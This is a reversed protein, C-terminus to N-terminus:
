KVKGTLKAMARRRTFTTAEGLSLVRRAAKGDWHANHAMSRIVADADTVIPNGEPLRMIQWYLRRASESAGERHLSPALMRVVGTLRIAALREVVPLAAERAEEASGGIVPTVAQLVADPQASVFHTLGELTPLYVTSAPDTALRSLVPLLRPSRAACLRLFPEQAAERISTDLDLLLRGLRELAGAPEREGAASIVPLTARRVTLDPDRILLDM